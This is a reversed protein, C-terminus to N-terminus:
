KKSSGNTAEMIKEDKDVAKKVKRRYNYFQYIAFVVMSSIIIGVINLGFVYLSQRTVLSNSSSIALGLTSLPPILAVSIAVGPMSENM